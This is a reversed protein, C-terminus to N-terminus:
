SEGCGNNRNMRLSNFGIRRSNKLGVGIACVSASWAFSLASSAARSVGVAVAKPGFPIRQVIFDQLAEDGLDRAGCDFCLAERQPNLGEARLDVEVIPARATQLSGPTRGAGDRSAGAGGGDTALAEGAM